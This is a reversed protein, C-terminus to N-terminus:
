PQLFKSPDLVPFLRLSSGSQWGITSFLTFSDCSARPQGQSSWGDLIKYESKHLKWCVTQWIKWGVLFFFSLYFDLLREANNVQKAPLPVFEIACELNLSTHIWLLCMLVLIFAIVFCWSSKTWMRFFILLFWAAYIWLKLNNLCIKKM